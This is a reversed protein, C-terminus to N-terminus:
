SSSPRSSDSASSSRTWPRCAVTAFAAASVVRPITNVAHAAAGDTSFERTSSRGVPAYRNNTREPPPM